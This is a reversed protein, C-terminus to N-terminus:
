KKPNIKILKKLLEDIEAPKQKVFTIDYIYENKQFWNKFMSPFFKTIKRDRPENYFFYIKKNYNIDIRTSAHTINILSEIKKGNIYIYNLDKKIILNKSFLLKVFTVLGYSFLIVLSASMVLLLGENKYFLHGVWSNRGSGPKRLSFEYSNLHIYSFFLIMLIAFIIFLIIKPYNYKLEIQSM